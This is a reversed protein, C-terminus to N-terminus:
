AYPSPQYSRQATDSYEYSAYSTQGGYSGSTGFVGASGSGINDGPLSYHQQPVALLSRTHALGYAPAAYPSSTPPKYVYQNLYNSGSYRAAPSHLSTPNSNRWSFSPYANSYKAVKTPRCSPLKGCGRGGIAGYGRKKKPKHAAASNKKREAKAKELRTAQKKLSDLPFESELKHDEVCKIILKISNLEWKETAASSNNCNKLRNTTNNESIRLYSKLLSVPPFRETLGSESAFYIAEIEKGSKALEDIIDGMKEKDELAAAMKAMDRRSAHKIMMKRLFEKDFKSDLRFGAVMQVFMVAEAAGLTGELEGDMEGKWLELINAAREVVSRAFGCGKKGLNAEPFLARVLLGCAWRKDTVGVKRSKLKVFDELSDLVLRPPDVAEGLAQVIEARLSISEKRKSVIFSSLGAWDMRRSFSRLAESLELNGSFQKEFEALAAEKQEEIRAVAASEREPILCERKDLSESTERSRSELAQIKSELTQFKQSISDQLSDFQGTLTTYLQTSTSLITKQAELDDFFNQVRDTNVVLETAM